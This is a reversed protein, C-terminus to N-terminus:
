ARRRVIGLAGLGALLLPLGAPLPVAAIPDIPDTIGNEVTLAYGLSTFISGAGIGTPSGTYMNVLGPGSLANPQTSANGSIGYSLGSSGNTFRVIFNEDITTAINFASLDWTLAFFQFGTGGLISSGGYIDASSFSATALEDAM